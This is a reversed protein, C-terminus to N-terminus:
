IFKYGLLKYILRVLLMAPAPDDTPRYEMIDFGVVNKQQFVKKLFELTQYYYLGGPEPTGTTMISPDFADVDLTIYVNDTLKEIAEDHWGSNNYIDRAWFVPINENKILESGEFSLSRLGIGVYPAFERIRSMTCAHSTTSNDFKDYLDAHADLQLVSLTDHKESLAKAAGISLSHGGGLLIPFKDTKKVAEYVTNIAEEPDESLELPDQTHIGAKWIDGLEEDYPELEKSVELIKQPANETGPMFSLAGGYPAPIIVAKAKKPDTIDPPLSGFQM